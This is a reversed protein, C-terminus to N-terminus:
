SLHRKRWNFSVLSINYFIDIFNKKVQFKLFQFGNKETFYNIRDDSYILSHAFGCLEKKM